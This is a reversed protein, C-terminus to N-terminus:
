SPECPQDSWQAAALSVPSTMRAMLLQLLTPTSPLERVTAPLLKELLM